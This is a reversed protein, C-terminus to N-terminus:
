IWWNVLFLAGFLHQHQEASAWSNINYVTFSWCCYLSINGQTMQHTGLWKLKQEERHAPLTTPTKWGPWRDEPAARTAPSLCSPFAAPCGPSLIGRNKLFLFGLSSEWFLSSYWSHRTLLTHKPGTNVLQGGRVAQCSLLVRISTSLTADVVQMIISFLSLRNNVCSWESDATGMTHSPIYVERRRLPRLWTEWPSLIFWWGEVEDPPTIM